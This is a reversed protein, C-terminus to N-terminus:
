SPELMILTSWFLANDASYRGTLLQRIRAQIKNSILQIHRDREQAQFEDHLAELSTKKPNNM